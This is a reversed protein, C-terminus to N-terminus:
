ANACAPPETRREFVVAVMPSGESSEGRETAPGVAACTGVHGGTGRALTRAANPMRAHARAVVKKSGAVFVGDVVASTEFHGWRRIAPDGVLAALVAGDAGAALPVIVSPEPPLELSSRVLYLERGGAAAFRDALRTADAPSLFSSVASLGLVEGPLQYLSRARPDDPRIRLIAYTGEDIFSALLDAPTKQADQADARCAFQAFCLLALATHKCWRTM